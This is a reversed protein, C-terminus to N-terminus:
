PVEVYAQRQQYLALRQRIQAALAPIRAQTAAEIASGATVIAEEFRGGAAYAAALSDLVTAEKSGIAAAREGLRIAESANRVAADASTAQVWASAALPAAWGPKLGAALQFQEVAEAGRGALALARGLNDHAQPNGPRLAITRRYHDVAEAPRRRLLLMAALNNHADAYDPDIRVAETFAAIAEEFKQQSSLAVGLNYHSPASGPDLRLSERLHTIAQDFRGAQLHLMAVTIHRIPNDPDANMLKTQAALDEASTKRNIHANLTAEDVRNRPVVQVWLDGMEDSTNQGWVVPRPPQTPNRPNEASNDYTFRMSITTGKPLAIPQVYRYVDQWGFDWDAISILPRVSGDPLTASADVRRLLNHAHPSVALVDVDVPLVYSDAIAYNREGAPIEITESGLRLGIPSRAPAENTFFLGASVQVAEPKGTPQLHLQVVLDSGSELRWAMGDPSPRPRQGPTWGLMYGPPYWSDPVMGGAYGPQPDLLDLRRSSGTSDIGLNAHHVVRPNGPRLELAKVYRAESTPIPIVFTRFVNQGDAALEYVESMTVILDPKGLHWGSTWEPQPPLDAPNGEVEGQAVWQQFRAIQEDTLARADIFEGVGPTPKWPPMLRRATVSAIQTAHQRVDSYSLLSFPGIEGPRHCSACHTFVLPAIDRNFTMTTQALAPGTLARAPMMLGLATAGIVSFPAIRM